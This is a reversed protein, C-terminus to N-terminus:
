RVTVKKHSCFIESTIRRYTIHPVLNGGAPPLEVHLRLNMDHAHRFEKLLLFAFRKASIVLPVTGLMMTVVDLVGLSQQGIVDLMASGVMEPLLMAVLILGLQLGDGTAATSNELWGKVDFRTFELGGAAVM